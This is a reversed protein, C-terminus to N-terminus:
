TCVIVLRPDMVKDCESGTLINGRVECVACFRIIMLSM